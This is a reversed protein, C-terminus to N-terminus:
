RLLRAIHARTTKAEPVPLLMWDHVMGATEEVTVQTGPADRALHADPNLLDRTGTFITIAGLHDVRARVPSVLGSDPGDPGAYSAALARIHDLKLLPDRPAIRASEPNAFTLDFTPSLLVTTDAAPAKEPLAVLM